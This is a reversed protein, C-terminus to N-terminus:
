AGIGLYLNNDYYYLGGEYAATGSLNKSPFVFAGENTFEFQGGVNEPLKLHLNTSTYNYGLQFDASRGFKMYENDLLHAQVNYDNILQTVLQTAGYSGLTISSEVNETERNTWKNSVGVNTAGKPTWKTNPM